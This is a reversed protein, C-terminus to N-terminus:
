VQFRKILAGYQSVFLPTSKDSVEKDGDRPFIFGESGCKCM